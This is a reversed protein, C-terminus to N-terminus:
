FVFCYGCILLSLTFSQLLIILSFSGAFISFSRSHGKIFIITKLYFAGVMMGACYASYLIGSYFLPYGDVSMRLSIFTNLYSIGIMIIVLSLIAAIIRKLIHGM